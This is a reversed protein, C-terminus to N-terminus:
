SNISHSIVFLHPCLLMHSQIQLGEVYVYLSLACNESGILLKILLSVFWWQAAVLLLFAQKQQSQKKLTDSMRLAQITKFHSHCFCTSPQLDGFNNNDMSKAVKQSIRLKM